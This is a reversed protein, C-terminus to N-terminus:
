IVQYAHVLTLTYNGQQMEQRMQKIAWYANGEDIKHRATTMDYQVMLSRCEGDDKESLAVLIYAVEMRNIADEKEKEIDPSPTKSPAPSPYPTPRNVSTFSISM